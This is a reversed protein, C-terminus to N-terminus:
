CAKEKWLVTKSSIQIRGRREIPDEDIEPCEYILKEYVEEVIYDVITM